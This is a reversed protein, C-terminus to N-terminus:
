IPKHAIRTKPDVIHQLQAYMARRRRGAPRAPNQQRIGKEPSSQGGAMCVSVRLYRETQL